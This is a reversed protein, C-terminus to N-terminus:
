PYSLPLYTVWLHEGQVTLSSTRVATGFVNVATCTYKTGNYSLSTNTVTFELVKEDSTEALIEDGSTITINTVSYNSLKAECRLTINEMAKVHTENDAPFIIVPPATNIFVVKSESRKFFCCMCIICTNCAVRLPIPLFHIFHVHLAM